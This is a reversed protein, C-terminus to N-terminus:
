RPPGAPAESSSDPREITPLTFDPAPQDGEYTRRPGTATTGIPLNPDEFNLPIWFLIYDMVGKDRRFTPYLYREDGLFATTAMEKWELWRRTRLGFDQGTLTQLSDLAALNVALERQDLANVLAQFVPDSPYQGLAIALEARVEAEESEDVLRKWLLDAVARDHLRQSAKAAELRVIKFRSELQQAVLRADSADGHRGLARLAFAKVLPDSDEEVYLRYLKVYAEAGGWPASALLAIGRRQNEPNNTDVAWQAAQLPSPPNFSEVFSSFDSGITDCGASWGLTVLGVFAISLRLARM